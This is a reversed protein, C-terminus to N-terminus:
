KNAIAEWTQAGVRGDPEMENTRQFSRVAADTKDGFYGTVLIDYGLVLLKKQLRTVDEGKCGKDLVRQYLGMYANTTTISSSTASYSSNYRKSPTSPTYSPYTTAPPTYTPTTSPRYSPSSSYHSSHSSHSSHSRHSRHQAVIHTSGDRNLKLVFQPKIIKKSSFEIKGSGFDLEPLM